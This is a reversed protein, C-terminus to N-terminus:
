ECMRMAHVFPVVLSSMSMKRSLPVVADVVKGPFSSKQVLRFVVAYSPWRM